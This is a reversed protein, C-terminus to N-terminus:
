AERDFDHCRYCFGTPDYVPAEGPTSIREILESFQYLDQKALLQAVVFFRPVDVPLPPGSSRLRQVGTTVEPVDVSRLRDDQAM